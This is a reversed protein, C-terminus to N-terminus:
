AVPTSGVHIALFNDGDLIKVLDDLNEYKRGDSIHELYYSGLDNPDIAAGPGANRLIAELTLPNVSTTNLEGNVTYHIPKELPKDSSDRKKTKFHDGPRIDILEDPNGYEVGDESVLVVDESSIGAREILRGVKEPSRELKYPKDDIYFQSSSMMM